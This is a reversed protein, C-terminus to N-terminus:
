KKLRRRVAGALGILGTGLLMMSGPEPVTTTTLFDQIRVDEAGTIPALDFGLVKVDGVFGGHASADGALLNNLGQANGTVYWWIAAQYAGGQTKQDAESLGRYQTYLWAAQGPLDRSMSLGGKIIKTDLRKVTYVTGPNFFETTEVCFTPFLFEKGVSYVGFVGGGGYTTAGSWYDVIVQDGVAINDANAAAVPLLALVALILILKKM